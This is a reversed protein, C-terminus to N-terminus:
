LIEPHLMGMSAHNSIFLVGFNFAQRVVKLRIWSRDMIRNSRFDIATGLPGIEELVCVHNGGIAEPFNWTM